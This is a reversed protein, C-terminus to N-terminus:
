DAWGIRELLRRNIPMMVDAGLVGVYFERRPRAVVVV